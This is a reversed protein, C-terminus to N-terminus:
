LDPERYRLPLLREYRKRRPPWRNEPIVAGETKIKLTYNKNEIAELSSNMVVFSFPAPPEYATEYNVVRNYSSSFLGKEGLVSFLLFILIPIATYKLYKSNKKFDIARKFPVPKLELSKQEISAILLESAKQNQNLQIVNLLKDSVESFHNGIIRSAEENSIGDQLKFLKLLPYAIFRIFLAAEVLIFLWFLITRGFPNLWLFYEILLTILFYLLGISFFLISGKILENTYFKKTFEELKNQIITFSSM